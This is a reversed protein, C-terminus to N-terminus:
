KEKRTAKSSGSTGAIGGTSAGSTGSSSIGPTFIFKAQGKEIDVGWAGTGVSGLTSTFIGSREIGEIVSATGSTLTLCSSCGASGDAFMEMQGNLQTDTAGVTGATSTGLISMGDTFIPLGLTSILTGLTVIPPSGEMAVGLAGLPGSIDVGDVGLMVNHGNEPGVAGVTPTSPLAM